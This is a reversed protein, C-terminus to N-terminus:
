KEEFHECALQYPRHCKYYTGTKSPFYICCRNAGLIHNPTVPKGTYTVAGWHKCMRCRKVEAKEAKYLDIREYNWLKIVVEQYRLTIKELWELLEEKTLGAKYIKWKTHFPFTTPIGTFGVYVDYVLEEKDTMPLESIRSVIKIKM